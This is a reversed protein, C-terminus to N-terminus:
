KITKELKQMERYHMGLFNDGMKPLIVYSYNINMTTFLGIIPRYCEHPTFVYREPQISGLSNYYYATNGMDTLKQPFFYTYNEYGDDDLPIPKIFKKENWVNSQQTMGMRTDDKMHTKAYPYTNYTITNSKYPDGVEGNGGHYVGNMGSYQQPIVNGSLDYSGFRGWTNNVTNSILCGDGVTVSGSEAFANSPELRIINKENKATNYNTHLYGNVNETGVNGNGYISSVYCNEISFPIAFVCIPQNSLNNDNRYGFGNRYGKYMNCYLNSVMSKDDDNYLRANFDTHGSVILSLANNKATCHIQQDSLNHGTDYSVNWWRNLDPNTLHAEPGYVYGSAYNPDSADRIYPNSYGFMYDSVHYLGDYKTTTIQHTGNANIHTGDSALWEARLNVNVVNGVKQWVQDVVLYVSHATLYDKDTLKGESVIMENNDSMTIKFVQSMVGSLFQHECCENPQLIVPKSTKLLNIGSIQVTSLQPTEVYPGGFAHTSAVTSPTAKGYKKIACGKRYNANSDIVIRNAHMAINNIDFFEVGEPNTGTLKEYESNATYVSGDLLNKHNFPNLGMIINGMRRLDGNGGTQLSTTNKISNGGSIFVTGGVHQMATGFTNGGSIVVDKGESPKNVDSDAGSIWLTNGAKKTNNNGTNSFATILPAYHKKMYSIGGNIDLDSSLTFKYNADTNVNYLNNELIYVSSKEEVVLKNATSDTVIGIYPSKAIADTQQRSTNGIRIGFHVGNDYHNSIVTGDIGFSVGYSSMTCINRKQNVGDRYAVKFFSDNVNYDADLINIQCGQKAYIDGIRNSDQGLNYTSFPYLSKDSGSVIWDFVNSVNGNKDTTVIATDSGVSTTERNSIRIENGVDIYKGNGVLRVSGTLGGELKMVPTTNEYDIYVYGDPNVYTTNKEGILSIHYKRNTDTFNEGSIVFASKANQSITSNYPNNQHIGLVFTDLSYDHNVGISIKPNITGQGSGVFPTEMQSAIDLIPVWVNQGGVVKIIYFMGNYLTMDGVNYNEPNAAPVDYIRSGREGQLGYYGQLGLSGKIGQIGQIGAPGGGKLSLLDFNYNIKDVMSSVTDGASLDKIPISM